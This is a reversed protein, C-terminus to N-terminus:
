RVEGFYDLTKQLSNLDEVNLTVMEKAIKRTFGNLVTGPGVEVFVNAEYNLMTSMSDTWLVPSAAQKVLLDKITDATTVIEANVNAVVPINANNITIKNLEMALRDAAPKMLSSHFPASVPLVMARKAGAEKLKTSALAVADTKGAIVIQGPCNFNVAQVAGAEQEVSACVNIVTQSDLGMIAAMSGEGLPVAEQMFQGRRRVIKVADEFAIAEAAVLASYEGLSHGAMIDPRIGQQKLVEYCAVSVTLIAPQTNFTKRLEDEPGLFCLDSISFGLAEDAREFISKAIPYNDYLQKGMGVTQSGQGPFVFAIKGM